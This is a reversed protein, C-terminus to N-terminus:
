IKKLTIKNNKKWGLGTNTFDEFFNFLFCKTLLGCYIHILTSPSPTAWTSYVLLYKLPNLKQFFFSIMLLFCNVTNPHQHVNLYVTSIEVYCPRFKALHEVQNKVLPIKQSAWHFFCSTNKSKILVTTRFLLINVLITCYATIAMANYVHCFCPSLFAITIYLQSPWCPCDLSKYGNGIRSCMTRWLESKLGM